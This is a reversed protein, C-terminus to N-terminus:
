QHRTFMVVCRAVRMLWTVAVVVVVVVVAGYYFIYVARVNL